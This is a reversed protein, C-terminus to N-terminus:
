WIMGSFLKFLTTLYDLFRGMLLSVERKLAVYMIMM